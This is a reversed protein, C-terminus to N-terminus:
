VLFHHSLAFIAFSSYAGMPNGCAYTLEKDEYIFPEGVMLYEWSSAYEEGALVTLIEKQLLIPFRDTATTLDISDYFDNQSDLHDFWKTQDFTCDQSIRSLLSYLYDHLPM